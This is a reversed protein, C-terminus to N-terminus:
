DSTSLHIERKKIFRAPVGGWVEQAPVDSTVVAGAAIVAGDGIVVGRLVIAHAGIWVGNGIRPPPRVLTTAHPPEGARLAEFPSMTWYDLKHETPGILVGYAISCFDGIEGSQLLGSNVYTGSGISVGDNVEVNGLFAVGRIHSKLGVSAGKGLKVGHMSARIWGALRIVKRKLATAVNAYLM